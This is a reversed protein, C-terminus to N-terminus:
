PAWYMASAAAENRLVLRIPLETVPGPRLADNLVRAKAQGQILLLTQRAAGLLAPTLSLRTYPAARPHLVAVPDNRTLVTRLEPADPFLSATHGDEGMGLVVVDIPGDVERWRACAERAADDPTDATGRMELWRAAAAKGTLLTERVLRTNSDPHDAPVFREDVLTVTVRDWPLPMAALARYLPAPTSGGSVALLAHGRAAVSAELAAAIREALAAIQTQRDPFDLRATM